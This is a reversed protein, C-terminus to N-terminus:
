NKSFDYGAVFKGGLILEHYGFNVKKFTSDAQQECRANLKSYMYGADFNIEAFFGKYFTHRYALESYFSHQITASAIFLVM